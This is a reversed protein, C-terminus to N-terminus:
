EKRYLQTINTYANKAAMIISNNDFDLVTFVNQLFIHGLHMSSATDSKSFAIWCNKNDYHDSLTYGRPGITVNLGQEMELKFEPLWDMIEDCKRKSVKIMKVPM